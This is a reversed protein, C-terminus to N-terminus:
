RVQTFKVKSPVKEIEDQLFAIVDQCEQSNEFNRNCTPCCQSEQKLTKKMKEIYGKFTHKNAEKVQLEDRIEAVSNKAAELDGDFSDISNLSM